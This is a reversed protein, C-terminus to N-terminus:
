QNLEEMLKKSETFVCFAYRDISLAKYLGNKIQYSQLETTPNLLIDSGDVTVTIPMKFDANTMDPNWRYIFKTNSGDAYYYWLLEPPEPRYLFQNFLWTYDGKTEANVLDIFDQSTVCSDRYETGFRYIIRFFVGDDDLVNRLTHLTVAGKSYIDGDRYNTYAVDHPGVMPRKNKCFSRDVSLMVDYDFPEGMKEMYLAEAYTAFGEHIWLDAMDCVTVANGWWEHATEHVLIYDYDIWKGNKYGSGYAIATQHEMGAYPSEVLKYGDNWWPYEGFLEEFVEIVDIAQEFHIKAKDFNEPMVYFDLPHTGSNNKYELCFHRFPGLYFTVNYQNIPYSTKWTYIMRGEDGEREEILKGNSVCFLNEPVNFTTMVSDPKDSIHDKLPWWISAGDDECAVGIFDIGNKKKWVLGGRWPPKEAIKPKGEYSTVLTIKEGAKLERAFSIIVAKGQREYNLSLGNEKISIISLKESLEIQIKRTADLVDFIMTVDGAISKNDPFVSLNLHYFRVDYCSRMPNLYGRTSDLLRNDYKVPKNYNHTNPNRPYTCKWLILVLLIATFYIKLNKLTM